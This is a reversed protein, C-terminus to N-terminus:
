NRNALASSILQEEGGVLNELQLFYLFFLRPAVVFAPFYVASAAGGRQRGGGGGAFATIDQLNHFLPVM